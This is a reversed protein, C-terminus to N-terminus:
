DASCPPGGGHTACVIGLILMPIGVVLAVSKWFGATPNGLRISDVNSRPVTVRCSDCTVPQLWAIGSLSDPTIAVAHWRRVQGQQWIEVQQRRPLVGPTLQPPQHWGAGCAQAGIASLVCAATLRYRGGRRRPMRASLATTTAGGLPKRTRQPARGSAETISIAVLSRPRVVAITSRRCRAAM